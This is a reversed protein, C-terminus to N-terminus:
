NSKTPDVQTTGREVWSYTYRCVALFVQRFEPPYGAISLSVGLQKISVPSFQKSGRLETKHINHQNKNEGKVVLSSIPSSPKSSTNIWMLFSDVSLSAHRMASWPIMNSCLTLCVESEFLDLDSVVSKGVLFARQARQTGQFSPHLIQPPFIGEM